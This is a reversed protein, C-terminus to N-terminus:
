ILHFIHILYSYPLLCHDDRGIAYALWVFIGYKSFFTDILSAGALYIGIGDYFLDIIFLLILFILGYEQLVSIYLYHYKRFEASTYLSGIILGVAIVENIIVM